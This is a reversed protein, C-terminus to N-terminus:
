RKEFRPRFDDERRGRVRFHVLGHAQSGNHTMSETRTEKRSATTESTDNASNVKRIQLQRVRSDAAPTECASHHLKVRWKESPRGAGTFSYSCSLRSCSKNGKSPRGIGIM